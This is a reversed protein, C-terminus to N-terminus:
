YHKLTTKVYNKYIAVKKTAILFPTNEEMINELLNNIYLLAIPKQRILIYGILSPIIHYYLMIGPIIYCLVLYLIM